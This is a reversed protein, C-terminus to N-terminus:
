VNLDCRFFVKISYTNAFHNNYFIVIFSYNSVNNNVFNGFNSSYIGIQIESENIIDMQAFESCYSSDQIFSVIIILQPSPNRLKQTKHIM